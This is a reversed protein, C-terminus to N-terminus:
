SGNRDRKTDDNGKEPVKVIPGILAVTLRHAQAWKTQYNIDVTFLLLLFCSWHRLSRRLPWDSKLPLHCHNSRSKSKTVRHYAVVLKQLNNRLLSLSVCFPYWWECTSLVPCWHGKRDEPIPNFNSLVCMRPLIAAAGTRQLFLLVFVDEEKKRTQRSIIVAKKKLGNGLSM